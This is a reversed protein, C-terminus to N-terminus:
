VTAEEYSEERQKQMQQKRQYMLPLAALRLQLTQIAALSPLRLIQAVRDANSCSLSLSLTQVRTWNKYHGQGVAKANTFVPSPNKKLVIEVSNKFIVHPM